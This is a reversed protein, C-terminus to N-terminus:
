HVLTGEIVRESRERERAIATAYDSIYRALADGRIGSFHCIFDGESWISCERMPCFLGREVPFSNFNKPRMDLAVHRAFEPFTSMLFKVANQEWTEHGIDPDYLWILDLLRRTAPNNLLFMVGTNLGGEDETMLLLKNSRKLKTFIEDITFKFNTIMADADIFLVREIDQHLLHMLLPVKLWFALRGFHAPSKELLYYSIGHLEAYTRHSEICPAVQKQYGDGVAVSCIATKSARLYSVPQVTRALYSFSYSIEPSTVDDDKALAKLHEIVYRNNHYSNHYLLLTGNRFDTSPRSIRILRKFYNRTIVLDVIM